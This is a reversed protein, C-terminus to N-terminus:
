EPRLFGNDTRVFVDVPTNCSAEVRGGPGAQGELKYAAPNAPFPVLKTTEIKLATQIVLVVKGYERSDYTAGPFDPTFQSREKLPLPLKFSVSRTSGPELLSLAPVPVHAVSVGAPPKPVIRLIRVAENGHVGVYVNKTLDEYKKAPDGVAGDFAVVPQPGGNTLEYDVLLVGGETRCKVSLQVLHNPM